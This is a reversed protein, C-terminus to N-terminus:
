RNGTRRLFGFAERRIYDDAENGPPEGYLLEKYLLWPCPKLHRGVHTERVRQETTPASDVFGSHRATFTADRVV